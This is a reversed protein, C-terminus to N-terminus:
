GAVYQRHGRQAMAAGYSSKIVFSAPDLAKDSGSWWANERACRVRM